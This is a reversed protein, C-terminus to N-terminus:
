KSTTLIKWNDYWIWPKIFCVFFSFDWREREREKICLIYYNSRWKQFLVCFFIFYRKRLFIFLALSDGIYNVMHSPSRNPQPSSNWPKMKPPSHEGEKFGLNWSIWTGNYCVFRIVHQQFLSFYECTSFTSLSVFRNHSTFM